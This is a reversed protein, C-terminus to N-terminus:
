LLGEEGIRKSFRDAGVILILSVVSNFLGVATTFSHNGQQIGRRFVYTDFIDSVPRVLDNQLVLIQEFGAALLNGIRLILLLAIVGTMSPLTIHIIQRIKNAGDVIAAEYLNPDITSLTALYIITGWGIEKWIESVVLLGVFHKSSAMLNVPERGFFRYIEGAVGYSPSLISLMIGSIVVWSIFHPLYIVIQITKKFHRNRIENLMLSLIIPAPFGFIIKYSSILLTNRLVNSFDTSSFVKRFNDLGVWPSDFIGKFINYNKFAILVGGMPLYKFLIFFTIGPLLMLLLYKDRLFEKRIHGPKKATIM